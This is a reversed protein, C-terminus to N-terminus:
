VADDAMSDRTELMRRLRACVARMCHSHALVMPVPSRACNSRHRTVEIKERHALLETGIGATPLRLTWAPNVSLVLSAVPVVLKRHSFLTPRLM